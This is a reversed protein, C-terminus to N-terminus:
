VLFTRFINRCVVLAIRVVLRVISIAIKVAVTAIMSVVAVILWFVVNVVGVATAWWPNGETPHRAQGGASGAVDHARARHGTGVRTAM